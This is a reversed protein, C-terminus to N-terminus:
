NVEDSGRSIVRTELVAGPSKKKLEESALALFQALMVQALAHKKEPTTPDDGDEPGAVVLVLQKTDVEYPKAGPELPELRGTAPDFQMTGSVMANGQIILKM